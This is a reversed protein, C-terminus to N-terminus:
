FHQIHQTVLHKTVSSPSRAPPLPNPSALSNEQNSLKLIEFGKLADKIQLAILIDRRGENKCGKVMVIYDRYWLIDYGGKGKDVNTEAIMDNILVSYAMNGTEAMRLGKEYFHLRILFGFGVDVSIKWIRSKQGVM